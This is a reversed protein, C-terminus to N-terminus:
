RLVESKWRRDIDAVDDVPLEPVPRGLGSLIHPGPATDLSVRAERPVRDVELVTPMGWISPDAKTAQLEPDLLLDAVVLAADRNAANAPIAVFSTNQLTGDELM